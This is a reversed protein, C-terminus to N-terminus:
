VLGIEEFYALEKRADSNTEDSGLAKTADKVFERRNKLNYILRYVWAYPLLYPRGSIFHIYPINKLTQYSPFLLRLRSPLSATSKGEELQKRAIVASNNRNANGFAGFNILFQETKVTDCGYDTGFGFWKRCLTLIVKAFHELGIDRMKQLVYAEDVAQTKLFVALDLMLKIGAGYFWFHHALHVLLYAFHYSSELKGSNNDYIAHEMADAFGQEANSSGVKGSIIKTHMEIKVGDLSYDYVPGNANLLTYGNATVLHKVTDRNAEDILVDIDGMVRVQPIPYYEKLEAGKFFIHRIGQESLLRDLQEAVAGQQEYRMVAAYFDNEFRKLIEQPIVDKHNATNLVSFIVASLNHAHSLKYLLAYDAASDATVTEGKLYANLLTIFYDKSNM